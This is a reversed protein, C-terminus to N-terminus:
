TVAVNSHRLMRQIVKDPVGLRHLNTALGRRYAHWGHWEIGAKALLPVIVDAALADLNVPKGVPGPFM